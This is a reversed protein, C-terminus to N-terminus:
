VPPGPKMEHRRMDKNERNDRGKMEKKRDKRKINKGM